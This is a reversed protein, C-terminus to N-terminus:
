VTEGQSYDALRLAEWAVVGDEEHFPPCGVTQEPLWEVSVGPLTVVIFLCRGPYWLSAFPQPPLHIAFGGAALTNLEEEARDRWAGGYPQGVAAINKRDHKFYLAHDQWSSYRAYERGGSLGLKTLAFGRDTVRWGNVDAFAKVGAQYVDMRIRPNTARIEAIVTEISMMSAGEREREDCGGNGGAM